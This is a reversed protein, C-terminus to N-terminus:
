PAVKFKVQGEFGVQVSDQNLWRGDIISGFLNGSAVSDIVFTGSQPLYIKTAAPKEYHKMLRVFSKDVLEITGPQPPLPLDLFIQYKRYEDFGIALDRNGTLFDGRMGTTIVVTGNEGPIIKTGEYPLNLRSNETFSTEEVKVKKRGSDDLYFLDTRYRSVCGACLTVAAIILLVVPRM